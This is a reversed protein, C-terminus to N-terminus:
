RNSLLSKIKNGIYINTSIVCMEIQKNEIEKMARQEKERKKGGGRIEGM